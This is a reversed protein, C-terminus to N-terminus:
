EIEINNTNNPKEQKPVTIKLLGDELKAKIGDAIGDILYISRSVSTHRRERHIYDKDEEEINEDKEVGIFLRGDTFDLHIEDKSAGPLEAIIAYEEDKEEVDIKFTDSTLSRLPIFNDGFFDDLMNFISNERTSLDDKKKRNFPVLGAM